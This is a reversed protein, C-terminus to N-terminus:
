QTLETEQNNFLTKNTDKDVVSIVKTSEDNIVNKMGVIFSEAYRLSAIDQETTYTTESGKVLAEDVQRFTYTLFEEAQKSQERSIEITISCNTLGNEIQNIMGGSIVLYNKDDKVLKVDKVNILKLDLGTKEKLYELLEEEMDHEKNAYLYESAVIDSKDLNKEKAKEDGCGILGISATGVMIATLIKYGFGSKQKYEDCTNQLKEIQQKKLKKYKM